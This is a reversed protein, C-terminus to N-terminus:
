ATRGLSGKQQNDASDALPHGNKLTKRFILAGKLDIILDEVPTCIQREPPVKFTQM